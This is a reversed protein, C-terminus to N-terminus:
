KGFQLYGFRAPQHFGPLRTPSWSLLEPPRGKARNFRYFNARWTVNPKPSPQGLDAFPLLVEVQWSNDKDNSNGVTGKVQVASKMGKATYSWDGTFNTSVGRHDLRNTIIADFVGGLPNWQLEFYRDLSESTVFFEAVEEEWFKSDRATFTAQIDSDTCTWGLYLANTDYWIRVVTKEREPGSGDNQSFPTLVAANAWAPESLDGDVIVPGHLQPVIVREPAPLSKLDISKDAATTSFLSMLCWVVALLARCAPLLQFLSGARLAPVLNLSM